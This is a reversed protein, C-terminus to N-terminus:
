PTIPGGNDGMPRHVEGWKQGMEVTNITRRFRAAKLFSESSPFINYHQLTSFWM